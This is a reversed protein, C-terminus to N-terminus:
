QMILALQCIASRNLLQSVAIKLKIVHMNEARTHVRVGWHPQIKTTTTLYITMLYKTKGHMIDVICTVIHFRGRVYTKTNLFECKSRLDVKFWLSSNWARM